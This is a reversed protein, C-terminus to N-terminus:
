TSSSGGAASPLSIVPAIGGGSAAEPSVVETQLWNFFQVRVRMPLAMIQNKTPHGSCLKSFAEALGGMMTLMSGVPLDKVAAAIKEPDETGLGEIMKRSQADLKAADTSLDRVNELFTAIAQDSPEKITGHATSLERPWGPPVTGDPRRGRFDWELSEVVEGANFTAM